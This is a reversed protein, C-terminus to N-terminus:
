HNLSEIDLTAAATEAEWLRLLRQIEKYNAIAHELLEAQRPTVV